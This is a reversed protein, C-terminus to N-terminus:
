VGKRLYPMVRDELSGRRSLAWVHHGREVLFRNVAGPGDPVRAVTMRDPELVACTAEPWRQSLDRAADAANDVRVETVEGEGCAALDFSAVTRGEDIVTVADATQEVEGLIHSSVVFALGEQHALRRILERVDVIGHPDLGNTPEDLLVVPPKGVLARAIGLRQRMGLSYRGVLKDGVGGLGLLDLTAAIEARGGRSRDHSFLRLNEAATLNPYFGPTEILCGM